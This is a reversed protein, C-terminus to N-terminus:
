AVALLRRTVALVRRAREGRVRGGGGAGPADGGGGGDDSRDEGHRRGASREDGGRDARRAHRGRARHELHSRPPEVPSEQVRRPVRQRTTPSVGRHRAHRQRGGSLREM